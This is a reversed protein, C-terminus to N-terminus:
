FFQSPIPLEENSFADIYKSFGIYLHKKPLIHLKLDCKPICTSSKWWALIHM